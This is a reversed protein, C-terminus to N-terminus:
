GKSRTRECYLGEAYLVRAMCKNKMLNCAFKEGVVNSNALPIDLEEVQFAWFLRPSRSGFHTDMTSTFFDIKQQSRMQFLSSPQLWVLGYPTYNHKSIKLCTWPPPPPATAVCALSYVTERVGGRWVIDHMLELWWRLVGRLLCKPTTSCCFWHSHLVGVLLNVCSAKGARQRGPANRQSNYRYKAAAIKTYSVSTYMNPMMFKVFLWAMFPPSSSQSMGHDRGHYAEYM